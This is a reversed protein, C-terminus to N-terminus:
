FLVSSTFSQSIEKKSPAATLNKGAKEKKVIVPAVTVASATMRKKEAAVAAVPELTAANKPKPEPKPPPSPPMQVVPEVTKLPPPPSKDPSMSSISNKPPSIPPLSSLAPLPDKKAATPPLPPLAAKPKPKFPKVILDDIDVEPEYDEKYEDYDEM